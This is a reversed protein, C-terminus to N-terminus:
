TYEQKKQKNKRSQKHRLRLQAQKTTSSRPLRSHSTQKMASPWQSRVCNIANDNKYLVEIFQTVAKDVYNEETDETPQLVTTTQTRKLLYKPKKQAAVSEKWHSVFVLCFFLLLLSEVQSICSYCETRRASYQEEHHARWAEVARPEIRQPEPRPLEVHSTPSLLQVCRTLATMDDLELESRGANTRVSDVYLCTGISSHARKSSSTFEWLFRIMVTMESLEIEFRGANAKVSNNDHRCTGIVFQTLGTRQGLEFVFRGTNTKVRNNDDQRFQFKPWCM